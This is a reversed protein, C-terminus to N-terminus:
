PFFKEHLTSEFTFGEECLKQCLQGIILSKHLASIDFAKGIVHTGRTCDVELCHIFFTEKCELFLKWNLGM